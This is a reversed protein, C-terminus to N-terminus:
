GYQKNSSKIGLLKKAYQFLIQILVYWAFYIHSLYVPEKYYIAMRIGDFLPFVITACYLPYFYKRNKLKSNTVSVASYGSGNQDFINNIIRFKLKKLYTGFDSKTYHYVYDDNVHAVLQTDHVIMSFITATNESDIYKEYKEYLFAKNFMTVSDGIPIIDGDTFRGIFGDKENAIDHKKILGINGGIYWQYAFASFPDGVNSIYHGLKSKYGLPQKYYGLLCKVEPHKKMFQIRNSLVSNNPMEEDSDMILIWEGSAHRIGIRKAIEPLRQPNELITAGYQRAIDLTTDNSGGDIIIIEVQEQDIKQKRISQLCRDITKGSNYTAIVISVEMSRGGNKSVM